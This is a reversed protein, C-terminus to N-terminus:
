DIGFLTCANATTRAAIEQVSESRLQAISAATEGLYAPENREDPHGCGPQDPADTELLMADLPINGAVQRLKNARECTVVAGISIYFGMNILQGAQELSGSYSHMMGRIGPFNKLSDIVAQTARVAHIVVPLDARRAIDLQSEFQFIQRQRDTDNAIHQKRFDLGCEGVAVAKHDVLYDELAPIDDDSHSASWYPHLGYCAHCNSHTRCLQEIRQWHERQTGPIIIDSIHADKARQLVAERDTDFAKDDLHCHADILRLTTM